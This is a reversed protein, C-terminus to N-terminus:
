VGRVPKGLIRGGRGGKPGSLPQNKETNNKKKIYEKRGATSNSNEGGERNKIRKKGAM